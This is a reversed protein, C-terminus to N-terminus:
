GIKSLLTIFKQTAITRTFYNAFIIQSQKKCHQYFNANCRLKEIGQLLGVYDNNSVCVGCQHEQIASHLESNEPAVALVPIGTAIAAYFKSPVVLGVALASMTILSVDGVHMSYKLNERPQYPLFYIHQLKNEKCWSILESKKKGDGIFVFAIHEDHQFHQMAQQIITFDHAVGMNGSYLIVFQDRLGLQQRIPNINALESDDLYFDQPDAWNEIIQIKDQAVGQRVLRQQMSHGISVIMDSGRYLYQSLWTLIRTLLSKESIVGFVVALDPYVDQLWFVLKVKKLIKLFLGLLALYPPTSMCILIDPRQVWLLKWFAFFYFSLYNIIRGCKSHRNLSTTWVRYIQINQYVEQRLIPTTHHTIETDLYSPLGTVVTVSFHNHVLDQALDYALQSTAAIEPYFHQNLLLIKM